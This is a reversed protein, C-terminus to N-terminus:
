RICNSRKKNLCIMFIYARKPLESAGGALFQWFTTATTRNQIAEAVKKDAWVKTEIATVGVLGEIAKPVVSCIVAVPVKLSPLVSSIVLVAAQVVCRAVITVTFLLPNAVLTATPLLRTVALREPIVPEVLTVTVGATRAETDTVGAKGLMARPACCCNVAVPVKVSPLVWFIVVVTCHLEADGATAVILLRSVFPKAVLAPTPVVRMVAVDPM